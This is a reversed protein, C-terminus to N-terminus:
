SHTEMTNLNRNYTNMAPLLGRALILEVADAATEVMEAALPQDQKRFPKLVFTEAPRTDEDTAIGFRLRPFRDTQLHYIVSELGRHCGDGGHPRIRIRGLPLDVDDVLVLLHDTNVDWRRTVTKVATGSLNMGTTPKVLLIERGSEEAYVYEGKGPRFSLNWRRALADAVWFGANHKTAAYRSGPNGLGVITWNM